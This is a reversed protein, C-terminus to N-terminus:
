EFTITGNEIEELVEDIVSNTKKIEKPPYVSRWSNMISKNIMEIKTNDDYKDLENTLLKIARNTNKCKLKKRLDLFEIFLSNLELNDYYKKEIKNNINTDTITDTVTVTDTVSTDMPYQYGIYVTDNKYSNIIDFVINKLGNDKINKSTEELSKLLKESKTWNYKYWNKVLLEKTKNSYIIVNHILQMRNILKQIIEINYGTEYSMQKLSIEYCGILNTHPNTLLYLYFYRDEPTFDDVIKNDSWFSLSITRYIAM